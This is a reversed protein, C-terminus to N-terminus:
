GDDLYKYVVKRGFTAKVSAYKLYADAGRAVAAATSAEGTIPATGGILITTATVGPTATSGALAAAVGLGLVALVAALASRGRMAASHVVSEGAAGSSRPPRCRRNPSAANRPHAGGRLRRRPSGDGERGPEDTHRRQGRRRDEADPRDAPVPRAARR